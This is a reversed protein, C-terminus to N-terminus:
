QPRASLIREAQIRAQNFPDLEMEEKEERGIDTFIVFYISQVLFFMWVALAWTVTSHPAFYAVLAGGGLCLAVEAVLTKLLGGQFCVGSRIWSLVGLALFLFGTNTDGWFVLLLLLLLPFLISLLKVRGWRILVLLYGALILWIVLRFATTWYIVKSIAIVTPIFSIGSLLGYIITTLMPRRSIKM